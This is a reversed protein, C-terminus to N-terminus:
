IVRSYTARERAERLHRDFIMAVTRVLLRGRPTVTLGEPSLEVLGDAALPALLALETAFREAFRIGHARALAAYDLRFECMLRQIIERRLLDDAGLAIGRLVPLRREDLAAYYKDLTKVNQM